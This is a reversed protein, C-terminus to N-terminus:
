KKKNRKLDWYTLMKNLADAILEKRYPLFSQPIKYGFFAM